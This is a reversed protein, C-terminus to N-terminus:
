LRSRTKEMKFAIRPTDSKGQMQFENLIRANHKGIIKKIKERGEAESKAQIKSIFSQLYEKEKEEVVFNFHRLLHSLACFNNTHVGPCKEVPCKIIEWKAPAPYPKIEARCHKCNIDGCGGM